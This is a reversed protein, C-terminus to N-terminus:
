KGTRRCQYQLTIGLIIVTVLLLIGRYQMLMSLVGSPEQGQSVVDEVEFLTSSTEPLAIEVQKNLAEEGFCTDMIELKDQLYTKLYAINEELSADSMFVSREDPFRRQDMDISKEIKKIYESIKSTILHELQPRFHERYEKGILNRFEKDEYLKAYWRSLNNYELDYSVAFLEKPEQVIGRGMTNDLDWVVGESLVRDDIDLYMYHSSYGFDMDQLIEEMVFMRAFTDADMLEWPIDGAEMRGAFEDFFEQVKEVAVDKQPEHIVVPQGNPLTIYNEEEYARETYDIELLYDDEISIRHKSVNIDEMLQYLGMYEGNIYLEAFGTEPIYPMGVSRALEFGIQNRIYTGDYYNANLVWSKEAEMGLLAEHNDLKITYSKKKADWATNGRGAISTLQCINTSHGSADRVQMYGSESNGKQSHIYDLKGSATTIQIVPLEAGKMIVVQLEEKEAGKKGYGAQYTKGFEIGPLSSNNQLTEDEFLLEMSLDMKLYLQEPEVYGPMCFYLIGESYFGKIQQKTENNVYIVSFITDEAVAKEKQNIVTWFIGGAFIVSVVFLLIKIHLVKTYM